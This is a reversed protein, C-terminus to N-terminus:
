LLEADRIGARFAALFGDVDQAEDYKSPLIDILMTRSLVRPRWGEEDRRWEIVNSFRFREANPFAPQLNNLIKTQQARLNVLDSRHPVHRLNMRLTCCTITDLRLVGTLLNDLRIFHIRGGGRTTLEVTLTRLAHWQDQKVLRLLQPPIALDRIAATSGSAATFFSEADLVWDGEFALSSIPRGPVLWEVMHSSTTTLVQLNPVAHQSIPNGQVPQQRRRHYSVRRTDISLTLLGPVNELATSLKTLDHQDTSDLHIRLNRLLPAASSCLFSSWIETDDVALYALSAMNTAKRLIDTWEPSLYLQELRLSTWYGRANAVMTVTSPNPLRIFACGELSLTRLSRMRLLALLINDDIGMRQMTAKEAHCFHTMASHTISLFSENRHSLSQLSNGFTCERVYGALRHADRDGIALHSHWLTQAHWAPSGAELHKVDYVFSAFLRKQGEERWAKCVLSLAAM